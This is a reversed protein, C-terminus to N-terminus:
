RYRIYLFYDENIEVDHGLVEKIADINKQVHLKERDIDNKTAFVYSYGRELIIPIKLGHMSSIFEKDMSQGVRITLSAATKILSIFQRYNRYIGRDIGEIRVHLNDFSPFQGDTLNVFTVGQYKISENLIKKTDVHSTHGSPMILAGDFDSFTLAKMTAIGYDWYKIKVLRCQSLDFNGAKIEANIILEKPTIRGNIRGSVELHDFSLKVPNEFNLPGRYGRVQKLLQAFNDTLQADQTVYYFYELEIEGLDINGTESYLNTIATSSLDILDDGKVDVIYLFKVDPHSQLFKEIERATCNMLLVIKIDAPLPSSNCDHMDIKPIERSWPNPLNILGNRIFTPSKGSM